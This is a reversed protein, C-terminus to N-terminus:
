PICSVSDDGLSEETGRGLCCVARFDWRHKVFGQWSSGSLWDHLKDESSGLPADGTVVHLMCGCDISFAARADDGKGPM